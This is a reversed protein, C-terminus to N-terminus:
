PNPSQAFAHNKIANLVKEVESNAQNIPEIMTTLEVGDILKVEIEKLTSSLSVM